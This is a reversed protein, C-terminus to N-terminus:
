IEKRNDMPHANKLENVSNYWEEYLINGHTNIYNYKGAKAVIAVGNEFDYAGDFRDLSIFEERENIYAWKDDVRVRAIGEFFPKADEYSKDSTRVKNANVYFFKSKAINYRAVAFGDNYDSIVKIGDKELVAATENITFIADLQENFYKDYSEDWEKQM